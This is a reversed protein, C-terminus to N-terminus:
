WLLFLRTCCCRSRFFMPAWVTTRSRSCIGYSFTFDGGIDYGMDSSVSQRLVVNIKEMRKELVILLHVLDHGQRVREQLVEAFPVRLVLDQEVFM